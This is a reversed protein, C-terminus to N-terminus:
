TKATLTSKVEWCAGFALCADPGAVLVAAVLRAEVCAGGPQVTMIVARTFARSTSLQYPVSMRTGPMPPM